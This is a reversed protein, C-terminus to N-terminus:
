SWIVQVPKGSSISMQCAPVLDLLCYLHWGPDRRRGYKAATSVALHPRIAELTNEVKLQGLLADQYAELHPLLRAAVSPQIEGEENYMVELIACETEDLEKTSRTGLLSAIRRTLRGRRKRGFEARFAHDLVSVVPSGAKDNGEFGGCQITAGGM